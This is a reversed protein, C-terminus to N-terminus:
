SIFLFYFVKSESKIVWGFCFIVETFIKWTNFSLIYAKLHAMIGIIVQLDGIWGFVVHWGICVGLCIWIGTWLFQLVLINFIIRRESWKKFGFLDSTHRGEFMVWYSGNIEEIYKWLESCDRGNWYFNKM